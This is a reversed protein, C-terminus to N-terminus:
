EVGGRVAAGAPQVVQVLHVPLDPRLIEPGLLDVQADPQALAAHAGLQGAPREGLEAAYAASVTRALLQEPELVVRDRAALDGLPGLVGVPDPAGQGGARQGRPMGGGVLDPPQEPVRDGPAEAIRRRRGRAPAPPPDALDLLKDLALDM